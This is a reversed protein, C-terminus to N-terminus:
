TGATSRTTSGAAIAAPIMNLATAYPGQFAKAEYGQSLIYNVLKRCSRSAKNYKEGVEVGATPNEFSAPAQDLREHDMAVGIMVVTPEAIEFGEYVWSPDLATIGVLDGDNELVYAKVLQTWQETDGLLFPADFGLGSWVGVGIPVHSCCLARRERAPARGLSQKQHELARPSLNTIESSASVQHVRM